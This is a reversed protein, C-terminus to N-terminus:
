GFLRMVAFFWYLEAAILGVFVVGGAAVFGYDWLEFCPDNRGPDQLAGPLREQTQRAATVPRTM